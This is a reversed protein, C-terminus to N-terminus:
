DMCPSCPAVDWFNAINTDAATLVEFGVYKKKNKANRDRNDSMQILHLRIISPKGEVSNIFKLMEIQIISM